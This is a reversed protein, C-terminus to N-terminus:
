TLRRRLRVLDVFARLAGGSHVRSDSDHEYRVPVEVVSLGARQARVLLEVDWAFGDVIRDGCLPRVADVRLLKFGRQTDRIRLGTTMRVALNFARSGIRRLAPTGTSSGQTAARSGVAIDAGRVIAEHLPGVDVLPTSLDVDTLLALEGHASRIGESLARGKGANPQPLRVVRVPDPARDAISATEDTSGDDVIVVETLALGAAHFDERARHAVVDLLRPLRRAENYAPVILSLTPAM